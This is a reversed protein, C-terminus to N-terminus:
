FRSLLDKVSIEVAPTDGVTVEETAGIHRQAWCFAMPGHWHSSVFDVFNIRDGSIMM